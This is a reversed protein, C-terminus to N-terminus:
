LCLPPHPSQRFVMKQSEQSSGWACTQFPWIQPLLTLDPWSVATRLFQFYERSPDYNFQVLDCRPFQLGGNCDKLKEQRGRFGNKPKGSDTRQIFDRHVVRGWHCITVDVHFAHNRILISWDRCQCDSCKKFSSFFRGNIAQHLLYGREHGINLYFIM